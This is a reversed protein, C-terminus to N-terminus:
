NPLDFSWFQQYPETIVSVLQLKLELIKKLKVQLFMLVLLKLM